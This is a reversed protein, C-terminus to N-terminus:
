TNKLNYTRTARTEVARTEVADRRAHTAAASALLAEGAVMGCAEFVFKPAFIAWVMLHRREMAVFATSVLLGVNQMLSYGLSARALAAQFARPFDAAPKAPVLEAAAAPLSACAVVNGSWTNVALLTGMIFFNFETFGTFACAFHLGDFACRHGGAFFLQSTMVTWGWALTLFADDGRGVARPLFSAQTAALAGWLAGREGALMVLVPMASWLAAHATAVTESKKPTHSDKEDGSRFYFLRRRGGRRRAASATTAALLSAAYACRALAGDARASFADVARWGTVRALTKIGTGSTLVRLGVAALAASVAARTGRTGEARALARSCMWPLAAFAALLVPTRAPFSSPRAGADDRPDSEDLAGGKVWSAGLAQLAANCALVGAAAAGRARWGERNEHASSLAEALRTAAFTALLFHAVDGEAVIFSNSLRSAVAIAMPVGAALIGLPSARAKTGSAGGAFELARGRHRHLAYGHVGLTAALLALGLLMKAEDFRAWRARALRAARRLYRSFREAKEDDGTKASSASAGTFRDATEYLVELAAWDAAGFPNGAEAVYRALYRRVQAATVRTAGSYRADLRQSEANTMGDARERAHAVDWLRRTVSGLNGFPIPVGLLLSLTPAFDIQPMTEFAFVDAARDERRADGRPRDAAAAAARPHYAFLFSDTEEPTGGGHDGHMTMGHDGMVILLARDFADDSAMAAVVAKVDADNEKIKRRMGASEVGFTHGAHDVGLFHGILVDWREPQTLKAALHRRVGNDVTDLDKVNFSPFPEVGGAFHSEHFLELWTDDGSLAVRRGAAASQAIVNDETLDAGGFSKSVDVFTPLGGTLIGKLRQQTTTPPDAVFRFLERTSPDDRELIEGISHLKAVNANAGDSEVSSTPSAFDFRAGDIILLVVKDLPTGTWCGEGVDGGGDGRVDEVRFDGCASRETLEVRTLLFGSAFVLVAVLKAAALMLLLSPLTCRAIM